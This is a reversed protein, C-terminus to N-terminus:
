GFSETTVRFGQATYTDRVRAVMGGHGSAYIRTRRPDLSSRLALAVDDARGTAGTWGVNPAEHPRSVTPIYEVHPSQVALSRLAERYPLEHAHSAGHIVVFRDSTGRHMADLLMSRLPAIGTVTAVMVHVSADPDLRMRGKPTDGVALRAGERVSFLSPTLRGDPVLEICFELHPEHPASAISYTRRPGNVVGLKTAQGAVFQFNAPRAVRFIRVSPAVAEISLLVGANPSTTSAAADGAQSARGRGRREARRAQVRDLLAALEPDHCTAGRRSASGLLSSELGIRDRGPMVM